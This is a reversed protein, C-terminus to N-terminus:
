REVWLAVVLGTLIPVAYTLRPARSTELTLGDVPTVGAVRWHTLMLRLNAIAQRLYGYGLAVAVALIGGAIATYLAVWFIAAPGVWAGIAGLLKVDGGGLGRLAFLPFFLALGLLCGGISRGLGQGGATLTFAVLAALASGATLWNPIRRSRLDTICALAATTLAGAQLLTLEGM